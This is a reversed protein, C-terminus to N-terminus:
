PEDHLVELRKIYAEHKEDPSQTDKKQQEVPTVEKPEDPKPTTRQEAM